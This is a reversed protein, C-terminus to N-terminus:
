SAEEKILVSPGVEVFRDECGSRSSDILVDSVVVSCSKNLSEFNRLCSFIGRELDEVEVAQSESNM